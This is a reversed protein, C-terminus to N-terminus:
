NTLDYVWQAIGNDLILTQCGSEKLQQIFQYEATMFKKNSITNIGICKIKLNYKKNKSNIKTATVKVPHNTSLMQNVGVQIRKGAEKQIPLTPSVFQAMLSQAGLLLALALYKTFKM